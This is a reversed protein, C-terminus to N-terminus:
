RIRRGAGLTRSIGIMIVSSYSHQKLNNVAQQRYDGVYGITVAGKRGSRTSYSYTFMLQNRFSPTSFVTTPVVNHDYHGLSFMEYYSQGYNPSFTLGVLPCSAEYSVGVRGRGLSPFLLCDVRAVPGIDVLARMQAPNNNNRTNYFVGALLEGQGGVSVSLRDHLSLVNYLLAYQFHYAGSITSGNESRPKGQSLCGENIIIRSWRCSDNQRLVHSLYRLEIGGYSEPSLYTDQMTHYGVGLMKDSTVEGGTRAWLSSIFANPTLLLILLTLIRM